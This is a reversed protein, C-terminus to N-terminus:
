APVAPPDPADPVDTLRWGLSERRSGDCAVVDWAGPTWVYVAAQGHRRGLALGEEESLGTVAAGEEHHGDGPDRGTAPSWPLGRTGLELTLIRQRAGNVDSALRIGDPNWATVVVVPPELDDPWAGVRGPAAPAIRFAPRDAPTVDVVATRYAQWDRETAM